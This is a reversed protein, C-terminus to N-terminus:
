EIWEKNRKEEKEPGGDMRMMYRSETIIRLADGIDDTEFRQFTEGCNMFVRVNEGHLSVTSSNDLLSLSCADDHRLWEFPIEALELISAIKEVKNM